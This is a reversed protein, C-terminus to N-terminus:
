MPRRKKGGTPRGSRQHRRTPDITLSRVIEAGNLIVARTGFRITTVRTGAWETGVSAQTLKGLPVIGLKSVFVSNIVMTPPDTNVPGEESVARPKAAWRELPTAGDIASHPRANYFGRYIDVQRQLENVNNARPQRKLWAKLTQHSREIKGCTQPHYPRSNITRIGLAGLNKEFASAGKINRGRFSSGNDSLVLAPPGFETMGSTIAEWALATTPGTGARAAISVRSHDDIVDMIWAGIGSALHWETADIQWCGNPHEFEFRKFSSRPRKKPQPTIMGRRKLARNITSVSVEHGSRQLHYAITQAGNDLPLEKRLRVIEDELDAAIINPSRRPRKSRPVLGDPGEEEFRKKLEYFQTKSIGIERCLERVNIGPQAAALLMALRTEMPIVKEVM